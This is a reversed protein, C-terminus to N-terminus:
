PAQWGEQVDYIGVREFLYFLAWLPFFPVTLLTVGCVLLVRTLGDAELAERFAGVIMEVLTEPTDTM